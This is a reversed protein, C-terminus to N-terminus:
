SNSGSLKSFDIEGLAEDLLRNQDDATLSKRTIKATADVTLQAVQERLESTARRVEAQIDNKAQDVLEERKIKGAELAEAETKDATRRARSIIEESEVRAAQLQQRYEAALEEAEKRGREASDIANTIAMQREDLAQTIQPWAFKKLLLLALVFVLLTWLMLGVDPSVLFSGGEETAEAAKEATTGTLLYITNLSASM